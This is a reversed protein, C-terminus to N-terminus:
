PNRKYPFWKLSDAIDLIMKRLLSLCVGARSLTYAMKIRLLLLKIRLRTNTMTTSWTTITKKSWHRVAMSLWMIISTCPTELKRALKISSRHLWYKAKQLETRLSM